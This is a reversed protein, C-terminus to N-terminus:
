TNLQLALQAINRGAAVALEIEHSSLQAGSSGLHSAGYPTGGTQTQNLAPESYPLGQILMGHHLLPVMMSMLTTEQGGHLSNTSTFVCAPKGILAQNTWLDATSDIFHKLPAAMNGFRTASGLALGACSSLDQKSCYLAGEQPIPPATKETTTDVAPVTRIRPEIGSVKDIGRAIHLALNKTGGSRSYYLVLIYPLTQNM